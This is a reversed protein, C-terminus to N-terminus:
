EFVRKLITEFREVIRQAASGSNGDKVNIWHIYIEGEGNLDVTLTGPTMTISNALCTRAVDTQLSTRAKVIGPRIPMAPHLVRYAVDFNAKFCEWLLVVIYVVMWFYRQPQFLKRPRAISIKGFVAAVLGCAVAGIALHQWDGSLTLLLWLAYAIVFYAIRSM